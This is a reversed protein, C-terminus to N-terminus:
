VEGVISKKYKEPLIMPVARNWNIKHHIRPHPSAPDKLISIESCSPAMMVTYFSKTYTGMELYLGTLGGENAQTQSQHLSIAMTTLFLGGRAGLAVYTNVDDNMRGVFQFPRATACFFSNMAKRKLRIADKGGGIHDGGQSLAVTLAGSRELFNTMLIFVDNLTSKVAYSGFVGNKNYRYAFAHYDDDLQVFHEVGVQEALAWCANRAYIVSRRHPFNDGDDMINQVDQKCFRLVEDGYNAIYREASADEDDVVIYIRGTYGKRKLTKYTTVNDPRGHSLIFVAFNKTMHASATQM